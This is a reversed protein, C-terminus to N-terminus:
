AEGGEACEDWIMQASAKDGKIIMANQLEPQSRDLRHFAQQLENKSYRSSRGLGIDFAIQRAKRINM